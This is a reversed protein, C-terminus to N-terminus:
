GTLRDYIALFVFVLLTWAILDVLLGAPNVRWPFQDPGLALRIVWPMPYGYHVAGLLTRSPILGTLLTVLIGGAASALALRDFGM